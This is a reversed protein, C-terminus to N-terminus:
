KERSKAVVRVSLNPKSRLPLSRYLYLDNIGKIQSQTTLIHCVYRVTDENDYIHAPLFTTQDPSFMDYAKVVYVQYIVTPKRQFLLRVRYDLGTYLQLVVYDLARLIRLFPTLNIM